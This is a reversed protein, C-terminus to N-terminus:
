NSSLYFPNNLIDQLYNILCSSDNNNRLKRPNFEQIRFGSLDNLKFSCYRIIINNKSNKLRWGKSMVGNVCLSSWIGYYLEDPRLEYISIYDTM